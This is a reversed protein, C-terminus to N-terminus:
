HESGGVLVCQDLIHPPDKASVHKCASLVTAALAAGGDNKGVGERMGGGRRIPGAAVVSVFVGDEIISLRGSVVLEQVLQGNRQEQSDHVMVEGDKQARLLLDLADDDQKYVDLSEDLHCIAPEAVTGLVPM